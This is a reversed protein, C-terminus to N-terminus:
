TREQSAWGQISPRHRHTVRVTSWGQTVTRLGHIAVPDADQALVERPHPNEAASDREGRRSPGGGQPRRASMRGDGPPRTVVDDRWLGTSQPFATAGGIPTGLTEFAEEVWFTQDIPSDTRYRSPIFLVLLTSAGKSAGLAKALDAM